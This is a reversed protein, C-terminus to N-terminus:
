KEREQEAMYKADDRIAQELPKGQEDAKKRVTELWGPDNKILDEYVKIKAELPDIEQLEQKALYEADTNIMSQLDMRYYGAKEKIQNLWQHDSKIQREFNKILHYKKHIDPYDTRFVYEADETLQEDYNIGNGDAKEKVSKAWAENDNIVNRYYDMGFWTLYTEPEETFAQYRAENHIAQELTIGDKKAEKVIGDFWTADLRISNEYKYIIDGSYEPAYLEYVQDIFGWDFKYLFRETVSLIIIDQKEIESKLKLEKVWLEGFYFQPYVQANFYWFAENAFLHKPVRTNFFNWYYSDAIALVMPKESSQNEEFTFVPYPMVAQPLQWLLNMTNGVDYDSAAISDEFIVLEAKYAPLKIDRTAEIKRLITDAIVPMTNESWHIGYKPYLLYTSTDKMQMFYKNLDMYDIKLDNVKQTIYEYNSLTIGDKLYRGPIFEPYFRAKSPELIFLLDIDFQAKLYDQLFKLRNLKKDLTTEGIFDGGTYARIYDYEFVMRDKGVVVGDANAKHYLGFDIQNNLRVFFNRFGIHDEIYSDFESQFTGDNWVNWTFAPRQHLVFDGDLPGLKFIKFRHQIAPLALLALLFAFLINKITKNM